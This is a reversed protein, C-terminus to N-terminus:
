YIRELYFYLLKDECSKDAIDFISIELKGDKNLKQEM